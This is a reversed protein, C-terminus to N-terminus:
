LLHVKYFYAGRGLKLIKDDMLDITPLCVKYEMDLYLDSDIGDYVSFGHPWCLGLVIPRKGSGNNPRSMLM